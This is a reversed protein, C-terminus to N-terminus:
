KVTSSILKEFSFLLYARGGLLNRSFDEYKNSDFSSNLTALVLGIFIDLREKKFYKIKEEFFARGKLDEEVKLDVLERAKLLREYITYFQKFYIYFFQSGFMLKYEKKFYPLFISNEIM